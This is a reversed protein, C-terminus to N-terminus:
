TSTRYSMASFFNTLPLGLSEYKGVIVVIIIIVIIAIIISLRKNQWWMKRHVDKASRRFGSSSAQLESAKTNLNGLSQEREVVKNINEQMIGVAEDVQKQVIRAKSDKTPGENPSVPNGPNRLNGPSGHNGHDDDSPFSNGAPYNNRANNSAGFDNSSFSYGASNHAYFDS